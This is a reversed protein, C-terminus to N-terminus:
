LRLMCDYLLEHCSKNNEDAAVGNKSKEEETEKCQMTELDSAKESYMCYMNAVFALNLKSNGEMIDKPMLFVQCKMNNAQQLM